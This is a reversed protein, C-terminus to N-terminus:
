RRITIRFRALIKNKLSLLIENNQKSHKKMSKNNTLLVSKLNAKISKVTLIAILQTKEDSFPLIFKATNQRAEAKKNLYQLPLVSAGAIIKTERERSVTALEMVTDKAGQGGQLFGSCRM